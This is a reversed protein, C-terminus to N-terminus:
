RPHVTQGNVKPAVQIPERSFNTVNSGFEEVAAHEFGERLTHLLMLDNGYDSAIDADDKAAAIIATWKEDLTKLAELIFSVRWQDLDVKM